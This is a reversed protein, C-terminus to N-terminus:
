RPAIRRMEGPPQDMFANRPHLKAEVHHPPFCIRSTVEEIAEHATNASVEWEEMSEIEDENWVAKVLWVSM